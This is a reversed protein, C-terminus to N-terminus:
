QDADDNEQEPVDGLAALLQGAVRPFLTDLFLFQM